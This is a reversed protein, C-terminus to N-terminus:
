TRIKKKSWWYSLINRLTWFMYFLALITNRSKCLLHRWNERVWFRVAVNICAAHLVDMSADLCVSHFCSSLPEWSRTPRSLYQCRQLGNCSYCSKCNNNLYTMVWITLMVSISRKSSIIYRVSLANPENIQRRTSCELAHLCATSSKLNINYSFRHKSMFVHGQCDLKDIKLLMCKDPYTRQFAGNSFYAQWHGRTALYYYSM